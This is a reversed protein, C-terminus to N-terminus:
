NWSRRLPKSRPITLNNYIKEKKSRTRQGKHLARKLRMVALLTEQRDGEKGIGPLLFAYHCRTVETGQRLESLFILLFICPFKGASMQKKKRYCKDPLVYFISPLSSLILHAFSLTLPWDSLKPHHFFLSHRRPPSPLSVRRRIESPIGRLQPASGKIWTARRLGVSSLSPLLPAGSCRGWLPM